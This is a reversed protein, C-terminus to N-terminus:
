MFYEVHISQQFPLPNTLGKLRDVVALETSRLVDQVPVVADPPVELPVENAAMVEPGRAGPSRNEDEMQQYHRKQELAAPRGM